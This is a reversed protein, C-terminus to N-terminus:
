KKLWPNAELVHKRREGYDYRLETGVELDKNAVIVVAPTGDLMVAQMRVNPHKRSHNLLRGMTGDETTADLVYNRRNLPFSYRYFNGIEPGAEERRDSEEQSILEGFYRLLVDNRKFSRTVKVGRGIGPVMCIEFGTQDGNVVEQFRASEAATKDFTTKQRSTMAGAM